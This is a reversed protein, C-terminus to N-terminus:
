RKLVFGLTRTYKSANYFCFVELLSYNYHAPYNLDQLNKLLQVVKITDKLNDTSHVGCCNIPQIVCKLYLSINEVKAIATDHLTGQSCQFGTKDTLMQKWSALFTFGGLFSDVLTYSLPNKGPKLLLFDMGVYSLHRLITPCHPPGQNLHWHSVM